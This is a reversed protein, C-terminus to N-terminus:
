HAWKCQHLIGFSFPIFWYNFSSWHRMWMLWEQLSTPFVMIVKDTMCQHRLVITRQGQVKTNHKHLTSEHDSLRPSILARHQNPQCHLPPTTTTTLTPLCQITAQSSTHNPLQKSLRGLKQLFISMYATLYVYWCVSIAGFSLCIYCVSSTGSLCVFM